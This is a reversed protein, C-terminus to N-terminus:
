RDAVDRELGLGGAQEELEDGGAVLGGADDDGGVLGEAAPALDEAVVGDGCGHDVPEDMVRVDDAHLSRLSDESSVTAPNSAPTGPGPKNRCPRNGPPPDPLPIRLQIKIHWGTVQVNDILLRLLEEKQAPDLDDIVARVPAAFQEVGRRLQNGKALDARQAALDGRKTTLEKQRATIAAARRQLEPVDILAASCRPM